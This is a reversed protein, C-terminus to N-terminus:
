QGLSAIVMVMNLMLGLGRLCLMDNLSHTAVGPGDLSMLIQPCETVYLRVPVHRRRCGTVLPSSVSTSCMIILPVFYYVWLLARGIGRGGVM